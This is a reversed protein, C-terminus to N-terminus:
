GEIGLRDGLARLRGRLRFLQADIADDRIEEYRLISRVIRQHTSRHMGKPRRWHDDLLNELKTQRGWARAMVDGAQSAYVVGSCQRCKFRGARLFLVAVRRDCHPCRFWPRTGGFHCPTRDLPVHQSVPQGDVSFSLRMSDATVTVGISGTEEGSYRNTWHWGFRGGGLAKHRAMSRVDLRLCHEAKPHWGPRGAGFRFGGTGM